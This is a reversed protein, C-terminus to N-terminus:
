PRGSAGWVASCIEGQNSLNLFYKKISWQANVEGTHSVARCNPPADGDGGQDLSWPSKGEPWKFLLDSMWSNILHFQDKQNCREALMSLDSLLCLCEAEPQINRPCCGSVMPSKLPAQPAKESGKVVLSSGEAVTVIRSLFGSKHPAQTFPQVFIGVYWIWFCRSIPVVSAKSSTRVEM